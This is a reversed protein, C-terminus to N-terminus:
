RYAKEEEAKRRKAQKVKLTQKGLCAMIQEYNMVKTSLDKRRATSDDDSSEDEDNWDKANNSLTRM